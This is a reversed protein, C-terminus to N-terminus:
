AIGSDDRVVRRNGREREFLEGELNMANVM